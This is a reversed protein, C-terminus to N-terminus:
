SLSDTLTHGNRVFADTRGWMRPTIANERYRRRRGIEEARKREGNKVEHLTSKENGGPDLHGPHDEGGSVHGDTEQTLAGFRRSSAAGRQDFRRWHFGSPCTESRILLRGGVTGWDLSTRSGPFNRQQCSSQVKESFALRRATPIAFNHYSWPDIAM